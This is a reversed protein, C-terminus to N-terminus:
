PETQELKTVLSRASESSRLSHDFLHRRRAAPLTAAPIRSIHVLSFLQVGGGLDYPLGQYIAVKGTAPDVGVFHSWRLGILAAWLVCLMLAVIAAFVGLRRARGRRRVPAGSGFGSVVPPVSIFTEGSRPLPAPVPRSSLPEIRTAEDAPPPPLAVAVSTTEGAPEAEPEPDIAAIAATPREDSIATVAQAAEGQADDSELRLAVATINDEGGAANAADVLAHVAADLDDHEQLTRAVAAEDVLGSLGDTCLLIVDGTRAPTTWVDVDVQWDAGLARTIVSRQPHQAAEEPALAGLRVWEAVLSHDDSLRTLVGGRWLYARSDGVHAFVVARAGVLAATVTSGMGSARPDSTAREAVRRNALRVTAALREEDSGEEVLEALTQVAMRSALEGALAGGMGDAVAFLPPEAYYADENKRRIKGAHTATAFDVVRV